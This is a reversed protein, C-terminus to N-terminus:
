ECAFTLRHLYRLNINAAIDAGSNGAVEDSQGTAANVPRM